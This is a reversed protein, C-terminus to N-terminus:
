KILARVDAPPEFRKPPFEPNFTVSEITIDIKQGALSQQLSHPMLIDGEKKYGGIKMSVPVEGMPMVITATEKVLLGTAKEYYETEPKGILPVLVLKYCPKGDVDEVGTTEVSSFLKKWDLFKAESNAARMALAKEEGEKLRAGELASSSWAIKGDTGEQMIGIGPFEVITVQKAPESEYITMSGKLNQAALAMTGKSISGHVKDYAARGGTVEVYRALVAEGKPVDEPALLLFAFLLPTLM